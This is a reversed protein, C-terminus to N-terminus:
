VYDWYYVINNKKLLLELFQIKKELAGVIRDHDDLTMLCGCDNDVKGQSDFTAFGRM